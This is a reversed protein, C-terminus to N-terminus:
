GGSQGRGMMEGIPVYGLGSRNLQPLSDAFDLHRDDTYSSVAADGHVHLELKQISGGVTKAHVSNIKELVMDEIAKREAIKLRGQERDHEFKADSGTGETLDEARRRILNLIRNGAIAHCIDGDGIAFLEGEGGFSAHFAKKTKVGERYSLEALWPSQTESGFGFILFQFSQAKTKTHTKLYRDAVTL